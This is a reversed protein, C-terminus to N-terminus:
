DRLKKLKISENFAKEKELFLPKTKETFGAIADQTPMVIDMDLLTGIRIGKFISGTSSSQAKSIFYDSMFYSYLYESSVEGYKPRISFFLNM